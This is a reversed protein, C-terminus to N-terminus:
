FLGGLLSDKLGKKLFGGFGGKSGLMSAGLAVLPNGGSAVAGATSLADDSGSIGLSSNLQEQAQPSFTAPSGIVADQFGSLGGFNGGSDKTLGAPITPDEKTNKFSSKLAKGFFKSFPGNSPTSATGGLIGAAPNGMLGMLQSLDVQPSNFNSNESFRGM